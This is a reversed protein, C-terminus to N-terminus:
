APKRAATVVAEPRVCVDRLWVSVTEWGRYPNPLVRAWLPPQGSSTIQGGGRIARKKLCRCGLPSLGRM